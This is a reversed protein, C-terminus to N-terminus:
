HEQLWARVVSAVVEPPQEASRRLQREVRAAREDKQSRGGSESGELLAVSSPAGPTARVKAFVRMLMFIAALALLVSVGLGGFRQIAEMREGKEMEQVAQLTETTDFALNEVALEDSREGIGTVRTNFRITAGADQVLSAYKAAVALYDVIGTNPSFLGAIGGVHPERRRIFALDVLDTKFRIHNDLHGILIDLGLAVRLEVLGDLEDKIPAPRGPRGVIGAVPEEDALFSFPLSFPPKSRIM